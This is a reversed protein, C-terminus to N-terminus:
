GGSKKAKIGEAALTELVKDVVDGQIVIVWDKLSGGVGCKKKLTAALAKLADDELPVGSITTVTKGGRGKKERRVRATGDSEPRPTDRKAAGACKCKAVPKHCSTCMRGHESSYVVRGATRKVSPKAM